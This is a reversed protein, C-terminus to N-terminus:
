NNKNWDAFPDGPPLLPTPNVTKEPVTPEAAKPWVREGEGPYVYVTPKPMPRRKMNEIFGPEVTIPIAVPSFGKSHMHFHFPPQNRNLLRDADVGIERAFRAADESNVGGVFKTSTNTIVSSELKTSKDRLQSLSQHALTLGVRAERARELISEIQETLYTAAEDIYVYCPRPNTPRRQAALAILAIMFAGMFTSGSEGLKEISTDVLIVKGSEIERSLEIRTDPHSLMHMVADNGLLTNLRPLIQERTEGYMRSNQFDERFFEQALGSLRALSPKFKEPLEKARVLERLTLITAGPHELCLLILYQLFGKQKGTVDMGIAAFIFLLLDVVSNKEGEIDFINIPINTGGQVLIMREEPLQALCAINRILSGKPAMVIVSADTQLDAYILRQLLQTKGSGTSGIAMCHEFRTKEPIAIGIPLNMFEEWQDAYILKPKVHSYREEEEYEKFPSRGGIGRVTSTFAGHSPVTISSPLRTLVEDFITFFKSEEESYNPKWQQVLVPMQEVLFAREQVYAQQRAADFQEPKYPANYYENRFRDGCLTSFQADVWSKREKEFRVKWNDHREITEIMRYISQWIQRPFGAPNKSNLLKDAHKETLRATVIAALSPLELAPLEPAPLSPIPSPAPKPPEVKKPRYLFVLWAIILIIGGYAQHCVM